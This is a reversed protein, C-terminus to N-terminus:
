IRKQSKKEQLQQWYKKIKWTPKEGKERKNKSCTYKIGDGIGLYFKNYQKLCM